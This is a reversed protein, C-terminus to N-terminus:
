NIVTEKAIMERLDELSYAGPHLARRAVINGVRQVVANAPTPIGFLRGLQVIEGNLYDTEIDGTGRMISQLSSGGHREFGVPTGGKIGGRRSRTEDVTSWEIGAAEYCAFAEERLTKSLDNFGGGTSAEVANNLNVALKAYKQKMVRDDPVCSFGAKDIAEAILVANEDLGHPYRGVDLVGAKDEAFNVVLGPELHEAPLLVVMGYVNKFRRLAARENAVGNQCSVVPVTDPAHAYLERLAGETHQGKMCMIVVDNETLDADKPHGMAPINIREDISPTVFRMGNSQLSQLHEGRAILLVEYGARFLRAGITGGIGGAGYIVFRM